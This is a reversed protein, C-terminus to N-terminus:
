QRRYTGMLQGEALIHGRMAALLQEKDPRRISSLVTDLAYVKFFYRHAGGAPPCPGGYGITGFSNLGQAAGNPLTASKATNESLSAADAPLNFIVWHVWTGAPADPDDCILAFSKAGAPAGNWQLPPSLDSAQCTYKVPIPKGDAFAPSTVILKVPQAAAEQAGSALCGLAFLLNM